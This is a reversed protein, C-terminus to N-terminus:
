RVKPILGIDGLLKYCFRCTAYCEDGYGRDGMYAYAAFSGVIERVINKADESLHGWNGEVQAVLKEIHERSEDSLRKNELANKVEPHFDGANSGEVADEVMENIISHAKRLGKVYGERLVESKNQIRKRM